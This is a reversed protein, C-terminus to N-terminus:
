QDDKERGRTKSWWKGFKVKGPIMRILMVIKNFFVNKDPLGWYLFNGLKLTKIM